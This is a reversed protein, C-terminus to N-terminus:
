QWDLPLQTAGAKSLNARSGGRWQWREQLFVSAVVRASGIWAPAELAARSM